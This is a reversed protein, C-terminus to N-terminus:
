EIRLYVFEYSFRSLGDVFCMQLFPCNKETEIEKEFNQAFIVVQLSVVLRTKRLQMSWKFKVCSERPSMQSVKCKRSRLCRDPFSPCTQCRSVHGLWVSRHQVGQRRSVSSYKSMKQFNGWLDAPVLKRLCSTMVIDTVKIVADKEHEKLVTWGCKWVLSFIRTRCSRTSTIFKNWSTSVEAKTRATKSDTKM